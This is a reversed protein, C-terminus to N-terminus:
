RVQEVNFGFEVEEIDVISAQGSPVTQSFKFQAYNIGRKEGLDFRYRYVGAEDEPGFTQATGEWAEYYPTITLGTQASNGGRQRVRVYLHRPTIKVTNGVPWLEPTIAEFTETLTDFDKGRTASPFSRYALPGTITSAKPSYFQIENSHNIFAPCETTSDIKEEAWVGTNMNFSWIHGDYSDCISVTDNVFSTSMYGTSTYSKGIARSISEVTGESSVLWVATKGAVVAGYPTAAMSRGPACGGGNLRSLSFDAETSGTLLWLSNRKGILLASGFSIIEEIAEGDDTSIDIYNLGATGTWDTYDNVESYFLRTPAFTSGGSWLRNSYFAIARGSPAGYVPGATAINDWRRINSFNPASYFLSGLGAAFAIPYDTNAVEFSDFKSWTGASLNSRDINFLEYSIPISTKALATAIYQEEAVSSAGKFSVAVALWQGATSITSNFALMTDSATKQFAGVTGATTNLDYAEIYDNPTTGQTFNGVASVWAAAISLRPTSDTVSYSSPNAWTVPSTSGTNSSTTTNDNAAGYSWSTSMNAWESVEVFLTKAATTSGNVSVTVNSAGAAANQIYYVGVFQGPATGSRSATAATSWGAPISISSIATTDSLHGAVVRMILFNGAQTPQAWASTASVTTSTTTQIAYNSQVQTPKIPRSFNAAGRGLRTAPLSAGTASGKAWPVRARLGGSPDAAWNKIRTAAGTPLLSAEVSENVGREFTIPQVRYDGDPM